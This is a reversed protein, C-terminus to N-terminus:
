RESGTPVGLPIATRLVSHSIFLARGYPPRAQGLGLRPLKRVSRVTWTYYAIRDTSPVPNSYSVAYQRSLFAVADAPTLATVNYRILATTGTRLDHCERTVRYVSDARIATTTQDPM